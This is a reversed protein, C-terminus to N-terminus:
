EIVNGSRFIVDPKYDKPKGDVREGTLDKYMDFAIASRARAYEIRNKLRYYEDEDNSEKAGIREKLAEYVDNNYKDYQQKLYEKIIDTKSKRTSYNPTDTSENMRIDYRVSGTQYPCESAICKDGSIYKCRSPCGTRIEM